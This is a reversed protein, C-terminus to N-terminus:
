WPSRGNRPRRWSYCAPLPPPSCSPRRTSTQDPPPRISPPPRRRRPAPRSPQGQGTVDIRYLELTQAKGKVRVQECGASVGLRDREAEPLAARTQASLLVDSGLRKNEAEIRSAANVTDGIATYDLRDPSGVTGVVVEGTHIGVGIRFAPHGLAAWRQRLERTRRVMAVACRAARLAHDPVAQPAGFIVMVGDGIYENLTGGHAEIIPVVTGFYANLLAVAEQPTHHEAFDTFGRVDAFLVTVVRTEGELRLPAAEAELVRAVAESKIVGLMRRLRRWRLAFASGYALFGLLLMAVVEVRLHFWRFALLSLALWGLQQAALLLAGRALSLNGFSWGLLGGAVLLVGLRLPWPVARISARDALTAVVNAHLEPGAMLGPRGDVLLAAAVRHPVAAGPRTV